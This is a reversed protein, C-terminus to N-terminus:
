CENMKGGLLRELKEIRDWMKKILVNHYMSIRDYNLSEVEGNEYGVVETLGQEDFEDAIFGFFWEDNENQDLESKDNWKKPVLNLINEANAIVSDADSINAKYKKASTVRRIDGSFSVNINAANSTTRTYVPKIIVYGNNEQNVGNPNIDNVRLEKTFTKISECYEPVSTSNAGFRIENGILTSEGHYGDLCLQSRNDRSGSYFYLPSDESAIFFPGQNSHIRTSMDTHLTKYGVTIGNVADLEIYGGGADGLRPGVKIYSSNLDLLLTQKVEARPDYGGRIMGKTIDINGTDLDISIENGVIKGKSFLVEGTALDISLNKGSIKVATLTGTTIRGADIDLAKISNIFAANATLKNVFGEKAALNNTFIDKAILKTFFANEAFIKDFLGEDVKLHVSTIVDARLSKTIISSIKASVATVSQAQFNTTFISDAFLKDIWARNFLSDPLKVLQGELNEKVSNLNVKWTSGAESVMSEAEKVAGTYATEAADKAEAAETFADEIEKQNADPDFFLLWEYGNWYKMVTKEGIIHYWTDGVNFRGKPTDTGWYIRNKSDASLWAKEAANLANELGAQTQKKYNSESNSLKTVLGDSGCSVTHNLVTGSTDYETTYSMIRIKQAFKLDTNIAMIYDGEHPQDYEYGAQRLDVMDLTASIGYSSEVEQKLREFLNEEVSYREDIVPDGELYGYIEALPSVYEVILRGKTQDEEDFYAGYGKKVTIFSGVDKELKLENMNFGKKVITSLDTGVEKILRVITGNVSFELGTSSIIDNFLTLRNKFGFSQKEFANVDVELSYSYGSGNFIFDLYAKMTNSGDLQAHVISKKMDFFFEHVADFEVEIRDGEDVPLAYTLYYNESNFRVKWGRGIGELIEDNTYITGSLSKEGNVGKTEKVEALASHHNGKEDVFILM